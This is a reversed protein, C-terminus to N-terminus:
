TVPSIEYVLQVEVMVDPLFLQVINLMEAYLLFDLLEFFIYLTQFLYFIPITYYDDDGKYCWFNDCDTDFNQNHEIISCHNWFEAVGLIEPIYLIIYLVVTVM